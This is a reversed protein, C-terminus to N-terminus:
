AAKRGCYVELRTGLHSEFRAFLIEWFARARIMARCDRYLAMSVVTPHPKLDERALFEQEVIVQTGDGVKELKWTVFSILAGPEHTVKFSLRENESVEEVECQGEGFPSDKGEWRFQHGPKAQFDGSLFWQAVETPDTLAKWVREAPEAYFIESKLKKDSTM